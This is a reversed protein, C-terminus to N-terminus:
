ARVQDVPGRSLRASARSALTILPDAAPITNAHTNADQASNELVKLKAKNWVELSRGLTEEKSREIGEGKVDGELLEIRECLNTWEEPHLAKFITLLTTNDQGAAQLTQLSYLVEERFFPTLASFSKMQAIPPSKPLLTHHVSSSFSILQRRAEEVHPEGGPNSTSTCKYLAQLVCQTAPDRLHDIMDHADGFTLEEQRQKLLELFDFMVRSKRLTQESSPPQSDSATESYGGAPSSAFAERPPSSDLRRRSADSGFWEGPPSASVRGGDPPSAAARVYTYSRRRFDVNGQRLVYFIEDLSQPDMRCSFLGKEDVLLDTLETMLSQYSSRVAVVMRLEEDESGTSKCATYCCRIFHEWKTMIAYLKTRERKRLNFISYADKLLNSLLARFKNRDDFKVIGMAVLLYTNLDRMQIIAPRFATYSTGSPAVLSKGRSASFFPATLMAPLVMYQPVSFFVTHEPKDLTLFRLEDRESNSLLDRNRLSEVIANWVNGFDHWERSTGEYSWAFGLVSDGRKSIRDNRIKEEVVGPYSMLKQTFLLQTEMFSSVLQPWSHIHGIKQCRAMWGSAISLIVVYFIVTDSLILMIPMAWRLGLLMLRITWDRVDRLLEPSSPDWSCGILGTHGLEWCRYDGQWIARSPHYLSKLLAYYEFFWKISLVIAFMATNQLWASLKQRMLWQPAVGGWCHSYGPLKMPIQLLVPIWLGGYVLAAWLFSNSLGTFFDARVREMVYHTILLVPLVFSLGNWLFSLCSKPINPEIWLSLVFVFIQFSAHSLAVTSLIKFGSSGHADLLCADIVADREDKMFDDPVLLKGEDECVARTFAIVIMVHVALVNLLLVRHFTYIVTLWSSKEVFTKRKLLGHLRTGDKLKRLLAPFIALPDRVRVGLLKNINDRSWFFENVDDYMSRESVITSEAAKRSMQGEIFNFFPTVVLRLFSMKSNSENCVEQVAACVEPHMRPLRM